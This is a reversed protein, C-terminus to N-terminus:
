METCKVPSSKLTSPETTQIGNPTGLIFVWLLFLLPLAVDTKKTSWGM